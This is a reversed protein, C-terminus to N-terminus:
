PAVNDLYIKIALLNCKTHFKRGFLCKSNLLYIIEEESISNYNKLGSSHCFKYDIDSWNTFTTADNSLNATTIIENELGLLKIYTYYFYEAPAYIKAYQLNLIEDKDFCLKEVLKRNLIFWNHSKSIYKRDIYSLLPTCNPFCQIQPSINFYGYNNDTIQNYIYDFSKMPVCSGSVIIFKYNQEDCYADRFLVNYALPITQDEYNTPICNKLKYNEFYLLPKHTKYHIYITYKNKDVNRFFLNWLEEHNIIDYILFCFALKRM